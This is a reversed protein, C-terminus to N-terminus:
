KPVEKNDLGGCYKRMLAVHVTETKNTVLDQVVCVAPSKVTIVRGPGCWTFSLKHPPRKPKAVVVFDGVHFRPVVINTAANHAEIARQRRSEVFEEVEKHMMHLAEQLKPLDCLREADARDLTLPARVQETMVEVLLRRARIGTMVEM